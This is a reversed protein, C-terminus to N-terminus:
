KRKIEHYFLQGLFVNTEFNIFFSKKLSALINEERVDFEAKFVNQIIQIYIEHNKGQRNYLMVLIVKNM